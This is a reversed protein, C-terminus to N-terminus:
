VASSCVLSVRAGWLNLVMPGKKYLIHLIHEDATLGVFITNEKERDNSTDGVKDFLTPSHCYLLARKNPLVPQDFM